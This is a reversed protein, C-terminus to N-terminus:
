STSKELVSIRKIGDTKLCFKVYKMFAKDDINEPLEIRIDNKTEIIGYPVRGFYGSKKKLLDKLLDYLFSSAINIPIGSVIAFLIESTTARGVKKHPLSTSINLSSYKKKFLEEIENVPVDEITIAFNLDVNNM